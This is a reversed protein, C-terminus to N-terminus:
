LKTGNECHILHFRGEAKNSKIAVLILILEVNNQNIAYTVVIMCICFVVHVAIGVRLADSASVVLCGSLKVM